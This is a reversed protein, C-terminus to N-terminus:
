LWADVAEVDTLADPAPYAEVISEVGAAIERASLTDDYMLVIGERESTELSGFDSPDSTVVIRDDSRAYPLPDSEDDAGERLADRVHEADIGEASPIM